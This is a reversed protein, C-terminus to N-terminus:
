LIGARIMRAEQLAETSRLGNPLLISLNLKVVQNAERPRRVGSGPINTFAGKAGQSVRLCRTMARKQPM